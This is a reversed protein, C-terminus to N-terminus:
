LSQMEELQRRLSGNEACVLEFVEFARNFKMNHLHEIGLLVLSLRDNEEAPMASEESIYEYVARIDDSITGLALLRQELDLINSM